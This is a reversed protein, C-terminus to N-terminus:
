KTYGLLIRNIEKELITEIYKEGQEMAYKSVSESAIMESISITYLQDIPTQKKGINKGKSTRKRENSKRQFIGIHGNQLITIFPKGVYEPKGNLVKSKETKKIKVKTNRKSSSALFRIIPERPYRASITGTLTAFNAKRIKLDKDVDKKIVNYDKSVKKKIESKVKVLTKNITGTIAIEIGNPINKLMAEAKELNKVELFENM